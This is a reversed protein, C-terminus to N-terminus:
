NARGDGTARAGGPRARPADGRAARGASAPTAPVSPTNLAHGIELALQTLQQTTTEYSVAERADQQLFADIRPKFDIAVDFRPNSGKVYADLNVLEEVEAYEAVTRVIQTRAQNQTPTSVERAVRSVSDLVDIAPYHGRNAMKRSLAIHGDLIGRAADSVPETMDDGEVLVTYFGTISGGNEIQGARELLGALQAFVSPTYGRTAPPEGVALGIQRQAQCFRTVSDMMLVIDLGHNRLYEAVATAVLAARVRVLPSEDGTAVVVVSRALGEPGLAHDIFDRVERGREGVLAIVSATASTNRAMSGLLTSKGVGPGAFIGLRQGRGVTLMGDIPRVGTSLPEAIPRRDLASLPPPVLLQPTTMGIPGRGDIPEGLGNIVRGLLGPGVNVTQANTLAVVRDGAALGRSSQFLMIMAGDDDCGVVEGLVPREAERAPHVSVLSGVPAPLDVAHLLMGRSRLVRGTLGRPEFTQLAAIATALTPM